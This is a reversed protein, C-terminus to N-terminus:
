ELIQVQEDSSYVAATTLNDMRPKKVLVLLFSEMQKRGTEKSWRLVCACVSVCM